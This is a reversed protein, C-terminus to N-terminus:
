LISTYFHVTKWVALKVFALTVFPLLVCFLFEILEGVKLINSNSIVLPLADLLEVPLLVPLPALLLVPLAVPLLVPLLIPLAM